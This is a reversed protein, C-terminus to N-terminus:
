CQNVEYPTEYLGANGNHAELENKLCDSVAVVEWTDPHDTVAQLLGGSRNRFVSPALRLVGALEEAQLLYELCTIYDVGDARIILLNKSPDVRDIHDKGLDFSGECGFYHIEHYGLRLALDPTRAATTTGGSVGDPDTDIMDFLRVTDFKNRLEPHCCTALLADTMGDTVFAEPDSPDVTLFTSKIGRKLLWSGTSNISWIDGDWSMLKDLHEATSMGGGVVALKRGHAAQKEIRGLGDCTAANSKLQDADAICKGIIDLRFPRM